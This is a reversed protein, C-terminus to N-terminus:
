TVAARRGSHRALRHAGGLAGLGALLLVGGAPLPVEAPAALPISWPVAEIGFTDLGIAASGGGTQAFTMADTSLFFRGTDFYVPEFPEFTVTDGDASRSVLYPFPTGDELLYEIDLTWGAFGTFVLDFQGTDMGPSFGTDADFTYSFIMGSPGKIVDQVVTATVNYLDEILGVDDLFGDETRNATATYSAVPALGFEPHTLLTVGDSGGAFSNDVIISDGPNLPVAQASPSLVVAMLAALPLHRM